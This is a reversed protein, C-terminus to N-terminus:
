FAQWQLGLNVTPGVDQEGYLEKVVPIQARATVFLGSSLGFSVAPALAVVLGGTSEMPGESSRDMGAQRGDLGLAVAVRKTLDYEGTVSWLLAHGYRYGDANETRLRGTVSAVAAFDGQGVRYLLGAYPGWSGTGLQAHEDLSSKRPGTPLSAGLSLGLAQARRASLDASTFAFWRAGVEVDGLGTEDSLQDGSALSRMAKSTVPVGVVLNLRDLPSYVASLRLTQQTLRNTDGPAEASEVRLWEGDLSLRLAGAMGPVESAAMLPDGCACVSCAAAPRPALAALALAATLAATTALRIRSPSV